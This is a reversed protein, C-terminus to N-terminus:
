AAVRYWLAKKRRHCVPSGVQGGIAKRILGRKRARLVPIAVLKGPACVRRLDLEDLGAIIAALRFVDDTTFGLQDYDRLTRELGETLVTVLEADTFKVYHGDQHKVLVQSRVEDM